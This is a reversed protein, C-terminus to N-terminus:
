LLLKLLMTFQRFQIKFQAASELM